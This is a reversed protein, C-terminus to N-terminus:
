IIGRTRWDQRQTEGIGLGALVEDTDQGLTPAPSRVEGPTESLKPVIGPVQVPTGDPLAGDLIMGRAQYHPDAAIDAVDYIKGAPIQGDNLRELVLDLPHQGTWQSIADDLMVVHKVRGANNALEPAEALDPRGIVGMLRKFISDGNGAILVYKNDQCRYANSPAIGPLSSGAPQRIEGFVSYEPLLSEMMNFVSEYLAVDIMQGTGNQDRARLALLIGIVGHLASLSDGISVGVRVPTRDPEGSLHRLGGMAEGIAGFGPLDRYPGTQGYGSVRLMVLRPNIARLEEWGLGWGEMTGPKFNEVVVDIDKVLARILDQAEPKRLDLSVSKKNRSQVQWWVSTGDHILRWNRLPDGKGPPEIKIVEAGFEGLMKAAFPGAILQGLELVRIGSLPKSSM